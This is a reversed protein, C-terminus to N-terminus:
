PLVAIIRTPAGSGGKIKLPLAVITAATPPLSDLHAINELGYLGAGLIIGHV